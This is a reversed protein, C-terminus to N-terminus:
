FIAVDQVRILPEAVVEGHILEDIERYAWVWFNVNGEHKYPDPWGPIFSAIIFAGLVGLWVKDVM